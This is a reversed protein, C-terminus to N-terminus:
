VIKMGLKNERLKIYSNVTRDQEFYIDNIILFNILLKFYKKNYFLPM